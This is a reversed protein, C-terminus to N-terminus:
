SKGSGSLATEFRAFKQAVRNSDVHYSGDTIAQRLATVKQQDVAPAQNVLSELSQLRSATDTLVVSDAGSSQQAAPAAPPAADQPAKHVQERQGAGHVAGGSSGNIHSVM